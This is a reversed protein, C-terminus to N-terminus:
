EGQSRRQTQVAECMAELRSLHALAKEISLDEDDEDAPMCATRALPSGELPSGNVDGLGLECRMGAAAAASRNM